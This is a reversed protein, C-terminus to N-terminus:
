TTCCVQPCQDDRKEGDEGGFGFINQWVNGNKRFKDKDETSLHEVRTRTILEVNSAGFVKCMYGNIVETKDQRWGWLGSKSRNFCLYYKLNQIFEKNPSLFNYRPFFIYIQTENVYNREIM